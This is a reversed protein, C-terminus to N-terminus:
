PWRGMLATLDARAEQFTLLEQVLLQAIDREARLADFVPLIGTRGSEYLRVAGARIRAAETFLSDRAYKARGASEATRIRAASLQATLMLRAEAARASAERAAGQAEAAAEGGQNWLPLPLSLGFIPTTRLDQAAGQLAAAAGWEVGLLLSPMPIRAQSLARSRAAAAASDAVIGTLAPMTAVAEGMGAASEPAFDDLGEALTGSARPADTSDWAIARGLAVNAIRSVERAQAELLRARAAEQAIQDRELASIDGEAVRRNAFNVLSDAYGAQEAALRLREAAALAGFFARQVDRGIDAMLQASDSEARAVVSRGAAVDDGRRLLWALSQTVTAQRTPTREDAQAAVVPNPVLGNLRATGRARAIGAAALGAQPRTQQARALAQALTVVGVSARRASAESTVVQGPLGRPSAALVAVLM